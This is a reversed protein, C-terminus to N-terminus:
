RENPFLVPMPKCLWWENFYVFYYLALSFYIISHHWCSTLCLLVVVLIHVVVLCTGRRWKRRMLPTSGSLLRSWPLLNLFANTTVSMQKFFNTPTDAKMVLLEFTSRSSRVMIAHPKQIIPLYIQLHVKSSRGSHMTLPLVQPFYTRDLGHLRSLIVFTLLSPSGTSQSTDIFRRTMALWILPKIKSHSSM